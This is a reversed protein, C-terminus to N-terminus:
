LRGDNAFKQFEQMNFVQDLNAKGAQDRLWQEAGPSYGGGDLVISTNVGSQEITLVLFPFKEDVSGTEQQWKSEIVLDDPHKTPHYLVFDCKRNKGYLNKGIHYQKAYIPQGKSKLSEFMTPDDVLHYGAREIVGSIFGEFNGGTINAQRGQQDSM